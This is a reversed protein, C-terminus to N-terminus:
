LNVKFTVGGQLQIYVNGKQNFAIDLSEAM